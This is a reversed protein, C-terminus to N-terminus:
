IIEDGTLKTQFKGSMSLLKVVKNNNRALAIRLKAEPSHHRGYMPADKGFRHVGYMPNDKGYRHVGYMPNKDGTSLGLHAQSIKKRAEDTQKKGFMPNEEGFRHIGLWSNRNSFFKPRTGNAHDYIIHCSRCLWCWHEEGDDYVGDINAMDYPPIQECFQCVQSKPIKKKMRYHLRDYEKQTLGTKLLIPKLSTSNTTSAIETTM